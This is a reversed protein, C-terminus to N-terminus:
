LTWSQQELQPAMSEEVADIEDNWNGHALGLDGLLRPKAIGCVWAVHDPTLGESPRVILCDLFTGKLEEGYFAAYWRKPDLGLWYLMVESHRRSDAIILNRTTM